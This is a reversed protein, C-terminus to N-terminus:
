RGGAGVPPWASGAGRHRRLVAVELLLEVFSLGPDCREAVFLYPPPRVEVSSPSEPLTALCKPLVRFLAPAPAARVSERPPRAANRM